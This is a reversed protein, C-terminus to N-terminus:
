AAGRQESEIEALAAASEEEDIECDPCIDRKHWREHAECYFPEDYDNRAAHMPRIMPRIM